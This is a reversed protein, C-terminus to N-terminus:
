TNFDPEPESFIEDTLDVPWADITACKKALIAAIKQRFHAQKGGMFRAQRGYAVNKIFAWPKATAPIESSATPSLFANVGPQFIQEPITGLCEDFWLM